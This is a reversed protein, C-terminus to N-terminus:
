ASVRLLWFCASNSPWGCAAWISTLYTDNIIVFGSDRYQNQFWNHVQDPLEFCFNFILMWRLVIFFLISDQQGQFRSANKAGRWHVPLHVCGQRKLFGALSSLSLFPLTEFQFSHSGKQYM